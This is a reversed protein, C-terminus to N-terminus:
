RSASPSSFSLRITEGWGSSSSGDFGVEGDDTMGVGNGIFGGPLARRGQVFVIAHQLPHPAQSTFPNIVQMSAAAVSISVECSFLPQTQDEGRIFLNTASAGAEQQLLIGNARYAMMPSVM